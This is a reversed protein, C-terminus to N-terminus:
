LLGHLYPNRQTPWFSLRRTALHWLDCVDCRYPHMIAEHDKAYSEAVLKSNYSKKRRCVAVKQKRSLSM